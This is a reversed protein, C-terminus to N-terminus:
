IKHVVLQDSVVSNQDYAEEQINLIKDIEAQIAKNDISSNDKCGVLFSLLIMSIFVPKFLQFNVRLFEM